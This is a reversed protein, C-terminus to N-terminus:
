DPGGPTCDLLQAARVVMQPGLTYADDYNFSLYTSASNPFGALVLRFINSNDGLIMDADRGHNITRMPAAETRPPMAMITAPSTRGQAALIIDAGDPRQSASAFSSLNSSGGVIDEQALGGFIVDNGGNGEIYDDGDSGKGAFDEQSVQVVLTGISRSAGVSLSISGDGQITDNGLQGFIQDDDAGGAIYDNAFYDFDASRDM